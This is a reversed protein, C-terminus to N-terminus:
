SSSRPKFPAQKDPRAEAPLGLVREAIVTRLIEDTGGAIRYGPSWTLSDPFIGELADTQREVVMGMPGRLMLADRALTQMEGATVLKMIANEPGPKEGRSLATLLRMRTLRLGEARIHHDVITSQTAPHDLATGYSGPTARAFEILAEVDPGGVDGLSVRENMLTTMATTWGADVPGLRQADPIRVDSLFVENFNSIGSMQRIRRIEVGPTRLDLWFMTMGRHKPADLNTRTLLIAHDSFQAGTTWVKQSNIIWNDGDALARTRVGALDSGVSPESFLQAWIEDGRMAPRALRELTAADSFSAITPICLGLGIEFFSFHLGRAAEEQDFILKQTISCGQGGWERPWHIGVYGADAKIGQWRRALALLEPTADRRRRSHPVLLANREFWERVQARYSAEEESDDFTM